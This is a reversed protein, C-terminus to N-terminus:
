RCQNYQEHIPHLIIAWCPDKYFPVGCTLARTESCVGKVYIYIYM